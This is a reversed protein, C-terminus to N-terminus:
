YRSTQLYVVYKHLYYLAGRAHDKNVISRIMKDIMMSSVPLNREYCRDIPIIQMAM